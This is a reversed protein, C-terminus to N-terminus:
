SARRYERTVREWEADDLQPRQALRSTVLYRLAAARSPLRQALRFSDLEALLEPELLMNIPTRDKDAM